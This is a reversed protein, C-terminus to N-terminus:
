TSDKSANLYSQLARLRADIEAMEGSQFASTEADRTDQEPRGRGRQPSRNCCRSCM